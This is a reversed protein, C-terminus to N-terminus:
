QDMVIIVLPFRAFAHPGRCTNRRLYVEMNDAYLRM